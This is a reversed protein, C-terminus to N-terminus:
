LKLLDSLIQERNPRSALIEKNNNHNLRVPVIKFSWEETLFISVHTM